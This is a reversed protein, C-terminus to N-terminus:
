LYITPFTTVNKTLVEIQTKSPNLYVSPSSPDKFSGKNLLKKQESASPNLFIINETTDIQKEFKEVIEKQENKKGNILNDSVKKVKDVVASGIDEAKDITYSLARMPLMDIKKRYENLEKFNDVGSTVADGVGKGVAGVADGVPVLVSSVGEGVKGITQFFKSKYLFYGAVVVGGIILYNEAKVM